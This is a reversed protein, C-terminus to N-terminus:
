WQWFIGVSLTSYHKGGIKKLTHSHFNWPVFTGHLSLEQSMCEQSTLTGRISFNWLAFTRSSKAGNSRINWPVFTECSCFNWRHVKRERSRFHLTVLLGSVLLIVVRYFFKRGFCTEPHIKCWAVSRMTLQLHMRETTSQWIAPKWRWQSWRSRDQASMKLEEYSISGEETKLLWDLLMTRPRRYAKKGQIQGELTIRLLSDHRLIHGLWRKQRSRVTDIIIKRETWGDETNRWKNQAWDMTSEDNAKMDMNWIGWTLDGFIKKKYLGRKAEM